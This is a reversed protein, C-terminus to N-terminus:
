DTDEQRAELAAIATEIWDAATKTKLSSDKLQKRVSSPDIGLLAGSESYNSGFEEILFEVLSEHAHVAERAAPRKERLRTLKAQFYAKEEEPSRKPKRGLM